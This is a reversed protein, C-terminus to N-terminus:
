QDFSLRVIVRRDANATAAASNATPQLEEEVDGDVVGVLGVKVACIEGAFSFGGILLASDTTCPFADIVSTVVFSAPPLMVAAEAVNTTL